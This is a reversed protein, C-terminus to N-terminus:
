RSARRKWRRSAVQRRKPQAERASNLPEDTTLLVTASHMLEEMVTMVKRSSDLRELPAADAVAAGGPVPRFGARKWISGAGSAEGGRAVFVNTGLPETRDEIIAPGQAVITDDQLVYVRRDAASVLIATDADTDSSPVLSRAADRAALIRGASGAPVIGPGGVLLHHARGGIAVPTGLATLEFLTDAFTLPLHVCGHSMPYGPVEGGHLAVGKRTLRLTNPMADAYKRSWHDKFKNLVTFRGAPTSYGPKGTSCTSVGVLLGDRYVHVLQRPISAIIVVSAQPARDLFWAYDGPKMSSPGAGPVPAARVMGGGAALVGGAMALVGRRSPRFRTQGPM